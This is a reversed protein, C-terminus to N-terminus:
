ESNARSVCAAIAPDLLDRESPTVLADAGASVRVAEELCTTFPNDSGQQDDLVSYRLGVERMEDGVIEYERSVAASCCVACGPAEFFADGLREQGAAWQADFPLRSFPVMMIDWPTMNATARLHGNEGMSTGALGGNCRDGFGFARINILRDGDPNLKGTILSSFVGSGGGNDYVHWAFAQDAMEQVLRVGTYRREPFAGVGEFALRRWGDEEVTLTAGAPACGSVPVSSPAPPADPNVSGGIIPWLCAPDLEESVHPATAVSKMGAVAVANLSGLAVITFLVAMGSVPRRMRRYLGAFGGM